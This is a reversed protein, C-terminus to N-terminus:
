QHLHAYEKPPRSQDVRILVEAPVFYGVYHIEEPTVDYHYHGGETEGFFHTHECRVEWSPVDWAVQVSYKSLNFLDFSCETTPLGQRVQLLDAASPHAPLLAAM